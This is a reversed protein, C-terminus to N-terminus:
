AGPLGGPEVGCVQELFEPDVETWWQGDSFTWSVDYLGALSDDVSVLGDKGDVSVSRVKHTIRDGKNLGAGEKMFAAVLTLHAGVEARGCAAQTEPTFLDYMSGWDENTVASAMQKARKELAESTPEGGGSGGCAVVALLDALIALVHWPM